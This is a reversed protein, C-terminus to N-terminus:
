VGHIDLSFRGSGIEDNDQRLWPEDFHYVTPRKETPRQHFNVKRSFNGVLRFHVRLKDDLEANSFHILLLVVILVLLPLLKIAQKWSPNSAWRRFIFIPMMWRFSFCNGIQLNCQLPIVLSIACLQIVFHMRNQNRTFTWQPKATYRNEDRMLLRHLFQQHIRTKVEKLFCNGSFNETEGCLSMLHICNISCQCANFFEGDLVFAM